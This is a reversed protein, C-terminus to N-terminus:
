ETGKRNLHAVSDPASWQKYANKLEKEAGTFATGNDSYLKNCHGRRAIFREFCAIFAASSADTVLDLHIARTTFCVFVALWCKRTKARSNYHDKLEFPGAYDVGTILFARNRTVRDKPLDAMIQNGCKARQTVCLACCGICSKIERKMDTIWYNQRLYQSMVQINGHETDRHAHAILLRSMSSKGPIIIPHLADFPLSAEKTRPNARILNDDLFPRMDILKSKTDITGITKHEKLEKLYAYEKTYARSQEFKIFHKLAEAKEEMTPPEIIARWNDIDIRNYGNKSPVIRVDPNKKPEELAREPHVKKLQKRLEAKKTCNRTFRLVFSLIRTLRSLSRSYEILPVIQKPVEKLRPIYIELGVSNAKSVLIRKPKLELLMENSVAVSHVNLPEPWQEQKELLWPPGHWWLKSEILEDAPLGRSVLDAPNEKTRVHRWHSAEKTHEIINKVRNSVYLKLDHLPKNIWQLAITSDSWLFYPVHKLEM